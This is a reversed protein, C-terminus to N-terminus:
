IVYIEGTSAIALGRPYNFKALPGPGDVYGMYNGVPAGAVTSVTSSTTNYKQILHFNQDAILVNGYADCKVDHPEGSYSRITTVYGASNIKRLAFNGRDAVYINGQPDFCVGRPNNFSASLGQGDNASTGGSGAITSVHYLDQNPPPTCSPSSTISVTPTPCAGQQCTDSVTGVGVGIVLGGGGSAPIIPTLINPMTTTFTNAVDTSGINPLNTSFTNAVNTSGMNPLNTSFPITSTDTCTVIIPTVLELKRILNFGFDSAYITGDPAVALGTVSYFTASSGPGNVAPGTITQWGSVMTGAIITSNGDPYILVIRNHEGALLNGMNDFALSLINYFPDKTTIFTSVYRTANIVRIIHADSVYLDGSSSITIALPLNFSANTGYGDVSMRIGSGAFTSVTGNPTILRIVYNMM